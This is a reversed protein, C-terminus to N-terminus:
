STVHLWISVVGRLGFLLASGVRKATTGDVVADQRLLRLWSLVKDYSNDIDWMFKVHLPAPVIVLVQVSEPRWM